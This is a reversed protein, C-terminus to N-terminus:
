EGGQPPAVEATVTAEVKTVPQEGDGFKAGGPTVEGQIRRGLVWGLASMGVFVQGHAAIALWFTNDPHDRNLWVGVAAFVTFVMAGGVIGAFSWARRGDSSMISPSRRAILLGAILGILASGAAILVWFLLANM